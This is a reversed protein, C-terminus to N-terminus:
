HAPSTLQQGVLYALLGPNGPHEFVLLREPGSSSQQSAGPTGTKWLRGWSVVEPDLASPPSSLQRTQAQM